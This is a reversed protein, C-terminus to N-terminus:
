TSETTAFSLDKLLARLWIIESTNTSMACYEAKASSKAAVNQKKSKWTVSNGGVFICHGTTSRRDIPCAAWDVDTYTSIFTHGNKRM